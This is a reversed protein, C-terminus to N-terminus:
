YKSLLVYKFIYATSTGMCSLNDIDQHIHIKISQSKVIAPLSSILKTYYHHKLCYSHTCHKHLTVVFCLCMNYHEKINFYLWLLM